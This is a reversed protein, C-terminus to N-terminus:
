GRALLMCLLALILAQRNETTDATGEWYGRIFIFLWLFGGLNWLINM